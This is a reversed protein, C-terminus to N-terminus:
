RLEKPSTGSRRFRTTTTWWGQEALVNQAMRAAKEEAYLGFCTPGSGSVLAPQAGTEHLDELAANIEPALRLAAPQLNNLLLSPYLKGDQIADALALTNNGGSWENPRLNEYADTTFIKLEPRVLVVWRRPAPALPRLEDGRGLGLATGSELFFSVDTGLSRAVHRISTRDADWLAELGLLVAAANSSGGALGAAVPIRKEVHIYVGRPPKILKSLKNAARFSLDLERALGAVSPRGDIGDTNTDALHVTDGFELAQLVTVVDHYGDNRRRRVELGLNIKAPSPIALKAM